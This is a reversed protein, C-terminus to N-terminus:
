DPRNNIICFHLSNHFCAIMVLAAALNGVIRGDTAVSLHKTRSAAGISRSAIMGTAGALRDVFSVLRVSPFM